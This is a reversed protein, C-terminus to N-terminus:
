LQSDGSHAMYVQPAASCDDYALESQLYVESPQQRAHSCTLALALSAGGGGLGKLMGQMQSSPTYLHQTVAVGSDFPCLVLVGTLPHSNTGKAM